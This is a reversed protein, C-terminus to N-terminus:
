TKHVVLTMDAKNAKDLRLVIKAAKKNILSTPDNAANRLIGLCYEQDHDLLYQVKSEAFNGEKSLNVLRRLAKERYDNDANSKVLQVLMEIIEKDGYQAMKSLAAYAKELCSHQNDILINFFNQAVTTMLKKYNSSIETRYLYEVVVNTTDDFILNVLAMANQDIRSDAFKRKLENSDDDDRPISEFSKQINIITKLINKIQNRRKPDFKENYFTEKKSNDSREVKTPDSDQLAETLISLSTSKIPKQVAKKAPSQSAKSLSITELSSNKASVQKAKVETNAILMKHPTPSKVKPVNKASVTARKVPPPSKTAETKNPSTTKVISSRKSATAPKLLDNSKDKIDSSIAEPIPLIEAIYKRAFDKCQPNKKLSLWRIVLNLPWESKATKALNIVDQAYQGSFPYDSEILNAIAGIAVNSENAAGFFIPMIRDIEDKKAVKSNIKSHLIGCKIGTPNKIILSVISNVDLLGKKYNEYANQIDEIEEKKRSAYKRELDEMVRKAEDTALNETVEKTLADLNAQAAKALSKDISDISGTPRGVHILSKLFFYVHTQKPTLKITEEITQKSKLKTTQKVAPKTSKPKSIRPKLVKKLYEFFVDGKKAINVLCSFVPFQLNDVPLLILLNEIAKEIDKKNDNNTTVEEIKECILKSFWSIVNEYNNKTIKILERDKETLKDEDKPLDEIKAWIDGFFNKLDEISKNKAWIDELFKDVDEKQISKSTRESIIDQARGELSQFDVKKQGQLSLTDEKSSLDLPKIEDPKDQINESNKQQTKHSLTSDFTKEDISETKSDEQNGTVPPTKLTTDAQKDERSDTQTQSETSALPFANFSKDEQHSTTDTQASTIIPTPSLAAFPRGQMLKLPITTPITNKGGKLAITIGTKDIYRNGLYLASGIGLVTLSAISMDLATWGHDQLPSGDFPRSFTDEVTKEPETGPTENPKSPIKPSPESFLSYASHAVYAGGLIGLVVAAIAKKPYDNKQNVPEFKKIEDHFSFPTIEEDLEVTPAITPVIIPKVEEIISEPLREAQKTKEASAMNESPSPPSKLVPLPEKLDKNGLSSASFLQEVNSSIAAVPSQVKSQFLKLFSFRTDLRERKFDDSFSYKTAQKHLLFRGSSILKILSELQRHNRKDNPFHSDIIQQALRHVKKSDSENKLWEHEAGYELLKILRYEKQLPHTLDTGDFLGRIKEFLKQFFNLQAIEGNDKIILSKGSSTIFTQDLFLKEYAEKDPYLHLETKDEVTDM